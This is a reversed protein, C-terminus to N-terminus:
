VLSNIEKNFKDYKIQLRTWKSLQFFDDVYKKEQKLAEIQKKLNYWFLRIKISLNIKAKVITYSVIRQKNKFCNYIM